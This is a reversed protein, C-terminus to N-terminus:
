KVDEMCTHQFELLKLPVRVMWSCYHRLDQGYTPIESTKLTSMVGLLLLPLRMRGTRPFEHLKSPVWLVWCCTHCDCGGQKHSNLTNRAYGYCWLVITVTGMIAKQKGKKLM